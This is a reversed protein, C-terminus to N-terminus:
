LYIQAMHMYHALEMESPRNNCLKWIRGNYCAKKVIGDAMAVFSTGVPAGM